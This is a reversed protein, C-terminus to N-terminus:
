ALSLIFAMGRRCFIGRGMMASLSVKSKILWVKGKMLRSLVEVSIKRSYANKRRILFLDLDRDTTTEGELCVMVPGLEWACTFSPVRCWDNSLGVVRPKVASVSAVPASIEAIM